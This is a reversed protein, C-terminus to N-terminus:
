SSLSNRTGIILRSNEDEVPDPANKLAELKALLVKKKIAWKAPNKYAYGNLVKAYEIQAKSASKPLTIVLPLSQPRLDQPDKVVIEDSTDTSVDTHTEEIKEKLDKKSM